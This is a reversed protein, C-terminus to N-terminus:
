CRRVIVDCRSLSDTQLQARGKEPGVPPVSAQVTPPSGRAKPDYGGYPEWKKPPPAAPAQVPALASVSPVVPSVARRAKPDYGGYPEWKKRAPGAHDPPAGTSFSSTGTNAKAALMESVRAMVADAGESPAATSSPQSEKRGPTYGTPPSWTKAPSLAAEKQVAEEAHNQASPAAFSAEFSAAASYISTKGMMSNARAVVDAADEVSYPDVLMKM